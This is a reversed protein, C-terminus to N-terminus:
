RVQIQRPKAADSKALHVRLVGNALEATVGKPDITEPVRFTRTFALPRQTTDEGSAIPQAGEILLESGDLRVTLSERPVGPLDAIVLIEDKNEYIDVPPAVHLAQASQTLSPTQPQTIDTNQTTM